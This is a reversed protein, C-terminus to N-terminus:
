ELTCSALCAKQWALAFDSDDDVIGGSGGNSVKKAKM